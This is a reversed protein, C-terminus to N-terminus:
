VMIQITESEQVIVIPPEWRSQVKKWGLNQLVEELTNKKILEEFFINVIESFREKVERYNKGSTSLDLAPTYAVFRKDERLISVPIKLKAIVKAM